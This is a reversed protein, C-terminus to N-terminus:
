DARNVNHADDFRYRFVSSCKIKIMINYSEPKRISFRFDKQSIDNWNYPSCYKRLRSYIQNVIIIFNLHMKCDFLNTLFTQLYTLKQHYIIERKNNHFAGFDCLIDSIKNHLVSSNKKEQM